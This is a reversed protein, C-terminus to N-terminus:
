VKYRHDIDDTLDTALIVKRGMHKRIEVILKSYYGQGQVFVNAKCACILDIDAHQGDFHRANLFTLMENMYKNSEAIMENHNTSAHITCIHCKGIVYINNDVNSNIKNYKTIDIPRKIKEHWTNGMVADGLRVHIVTSTEIDDPLMHEYKESYKNVISVLTHMDHKSSEAYESGITDPNELILQITDKKKLLKYFLDGLRYSM